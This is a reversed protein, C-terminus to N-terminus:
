LAPAWNGVFELAGRITDPGHSRAILTMARIIHGTPWQQESLIVIGAHSRGAALWQYHLRAFDGQNATFVCRGANAAWSLQHVDPMGENGADRTSLVDWGLRVLERVLDRRM